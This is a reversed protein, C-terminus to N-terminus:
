NKNLGIALVLNKLKLLYQLGVIIKSGCKCNSIKSSAVAVAETTIKNLLAELSAGEFSSKSAM